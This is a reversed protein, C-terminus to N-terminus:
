KKNMKRKRAAAAKGGAKKRSGGDTNSTESESAGPTSDPSASAKGTRQARLEAARSRLRGANSTDVSSTGPGSPVEDSVEVDEASVRIDEVVVEEKPGGTVKYILSRAVNCPWTRLLSPPTALESLPHLSGDDHPLYVWGDEVVLELSQNSGEYFPVRVKRNAGRAQRLAAETFYEVKKSDRAYNMRMVVYHMLATFLVLFCIVFGMGPRWRTYAYGFGKWKPVGNKLFFNYRDRREGDRLIGTIVGLRAFKQQIGPVGPNKDPHLELSRKRYAKTLQAPTADKEIRLYSYFTVDDGEEAKLDHVLDFIEYDEKTWRCTLKAM